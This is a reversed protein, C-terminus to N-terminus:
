VERISVQIQGSFSLPPMVAPWIESCCLRLVTTGYKVISKTSGVARLVTTMRADVSSPLVLHGNFSRRAPVRM